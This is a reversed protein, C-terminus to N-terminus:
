QLEDWSAYGYSPTSWLADEAGSRIGDLWNHVARDLPAAPGRGYGAEAHAALLEPLVQQQWAVVGLAMAVVRDDKHQGEAQIRSGNQTVYRAEEPWEPSNVTVMGREIGDRLLNMM